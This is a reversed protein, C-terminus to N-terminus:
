FGGCCDLQALESANWIRLLGLGLGSGVCGVPHRLARKQVIERIQPEFGMDLMRDAERRQLNLQAKLPGEPLGKCGQPSSCLFGWCTRGM